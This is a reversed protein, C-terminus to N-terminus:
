SNEGEARELEKLATIALMLNKNDPKATTILQFIRGFVGYFRSYYNKLANINICICGVFMIFHSLFTGILNASVCLWLIYCLMGSALQTMIPVSLMNSGCVESYRSFEKVYLISPVRKLSKYANFVMHEAGHNKIMETGELRVLIAMVMAIVFLVLPVLLCFYVSIKNLLVNSMIILNIIFPIFILIIALWPFGKTKELRKRKITIINDPNRMANVEFKDSAYTISSKTSVGYIIEM